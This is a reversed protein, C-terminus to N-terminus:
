RVPMSIIKEGESGQKLQGPAAMEPTSKGVRVPISTASGRGHQATFVHLYALGDAAPVLELTVRTPQGPPLDISALSQAALRLGGETRWHARAGGPDTVGDFRLELAVPRGASPEGGFRYSIEVGAGDPKQAGIATWASAAAKTVPKASDAAAQPPACAVALAAVGLGLYLGPTHFSM